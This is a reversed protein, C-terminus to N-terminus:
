IRGPRAVGTLQIDAGVSTEIARELLSIVENNRSRRHVKARAEILEAIQAPVRITFAKMENSM